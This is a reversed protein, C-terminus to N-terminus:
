DEDGLISIVEPDQAIEIRHIKTKPQDQDQSAATADAKPTTTSHGPLAILGPTLVALGAVTMWVNKKM